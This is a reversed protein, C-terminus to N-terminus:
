IQGGRKEARGVLLVDKIEHDAASSFGHELDYGSPDASSLFFFLVFFQKNLVALKIQSGRKVMFHPFHPIGYIISAEAGSLVKTDKSITGDIHLIGYFMSRISAIGCQIRYLLVRFIAEIM